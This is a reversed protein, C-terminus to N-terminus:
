RARKAVTMSCGRESRPEELLPPTTDMKPKGPPTDAPLAVVGTSPMM